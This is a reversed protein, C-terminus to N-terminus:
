LLEEQTAERSRLRLMLCEGQPYIKVARLLTAALYHKCMDTIRNVPRLTETLSVGLCLDGRCLGGPCLGGRFLSGRSLSRCLGMQCLDGQVCVGQVFVGTCLGGKSLSRRHVSDCVPTFIDNRATFFMKQHLTFLREECRKACIHQGGSHTM